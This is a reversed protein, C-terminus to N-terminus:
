ASTEDRRKTETRNEKLIKASRERPEHESVHEESEVMQTTRSITIKTTTLSKTNVAYAASLVVTLEGAFHDPAHRHPDHAVISM